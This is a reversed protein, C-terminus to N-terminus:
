APLAAEAALVGPSSCVAGPEGGTLECLMATIRNASGGVAIAVDDQPDALRQAIADFTLGHIVDVGFSAGVWAFRNGLMVFPVGGDSGVYAPTDYTDLLRQQEATLDDLPTFGGGAQPVNTAYEVASLTLYDSAYSVGHFTLTATDPFPEPAPGSVTPRLGTFTGFRSLAVVMAWREAACYPCFEAGIYTVVPKGDRIVAPEGAPLRNVPGTVADPFGIADLTAAPVSTVLGISGPAASPEGAGGSGQLLSFVVIVALGGLVGLTPAFRRAVSPREQAKSRGGRVRQAKGMPRERGTPACAGREEPLSRPRRPATPPAPTGGRAPRGVRSTAPWRRSTPSCSCSRRARPSSCGIAVAGTALLAFVPATGIVTGAILAIYVAFRLAHRRPHMGALADGRAYRFYQTWTGRLDARLPWSVVADRALRLDLRRTRWRLNVWMDEGVDLWEPWGGVKEIADRRMALSRASPLFRRADLEAIDPLNTAAMARQLLHDGLPRYAGMAVDAGDAIPVLIRELWHPDLVCDADTVALVEHAAEAVALNRGRAINAGPAEVVRIGQAARLRELTGDTSGGDVIVVEDPARTQRRLSTLFGELDPGADKVTAILSVKM